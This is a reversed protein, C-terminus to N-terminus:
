GMKKLRASLRSKYRAATNKHIVGKQIAKDIVAVTERFKTEAAAKDKGALAERLGRIETRLTSTNARNHTTRKETQRARKLASFHNAM